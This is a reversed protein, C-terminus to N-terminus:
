TNLTLLFWEYPGGIFTSMLTVIGVSSAIQTVTAGASFLIGVYLPMQFTVFAITGFVIERVWNEPKTKTIRFLWDRFKGYLGGTLLNVVMGTFRSQLSQGPTLGSILIEVVMGVVWSFTIM